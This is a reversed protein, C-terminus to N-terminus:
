HGPTTGGVDLINASRAILVDPAGKVYCRVVPENENDVMDHFTAMLKYASDFPLEAIRPYEKRTAGVMLGGKQALVVLAGETPDGILEGDQVVADSCLVMPLLIPDLNPEGAGGVHCLQGDSKYGEGTM